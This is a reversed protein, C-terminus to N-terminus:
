GPQARGRAAAAGAGALRGLRHTAPHDARRAPLAFLGGADTKPGYAPVAILILEIDEMAASIDDTILALPVLEETEDGGVLDGEIKVGGQELIAAIREHTRNYLHVTYGRRALAAAAAMGGPGAGMVLIREIASM